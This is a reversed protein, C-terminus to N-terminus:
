LDWDQTRDFLTQAIHLRSSDIVRHMYLDNLTSAVMPHWIPYTIRLAVRRWAPMPRSRRGRRIDKCIVESGLNTFPEMSNVM